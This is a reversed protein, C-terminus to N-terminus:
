PAKPLELPLHHKTSMQPTKHPFTQAKISQTTCKSCCHGALNSYGSKCAVKFIFPEIKIILSKGKVSNFKSLKRM